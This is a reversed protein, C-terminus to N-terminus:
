ASTLQRSIISMSSRDRICMEYIGLSIVVGDLYGANFEDLGGFGGFKLGGVYVASEVPIEPKIKQFLAFYDLHTYSVSITAIGRATNM